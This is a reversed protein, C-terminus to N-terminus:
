FREPRELHREHRHRAAPQRFQRQRQIERGAALHVPRRRPLLRRRVILLRCRKPPRRQRLRAHPRRQVRQQDPHHLLSRPRLPEQGRDAALNQLRGRQRDPLPRVPIGLGERYPPRLLLRRVAVLVSVAAEPHRHRHSPIRRAHSVHRLPHLSERMGNLGFALGEVNNLDYSATAAFGTGSNSQSVAGSLGVMGIPLGLALGAGGLLVKSDGQGNLDVTIQDTLGYRGNATVIWDTTLYNRENDRLFSPLGAGASWELDGAALLSSDSFATFDLSRRDGKDDVIALKVNNAGTQLPLDKLAYKGPGLKLQQVSLGNVLVEITSARELQFTTRGTPGSSTTPAFIRPAHEIRLGMFEPQAQFGTGLTSTDGLQFRLQEDPRDYVLRSSRRKLGGRHEATCTADAPCLFTDVDGDFGFDNEAVVDWFRFVSEAELHLSTQQEAGPKAWVTDLGGFLNLYGSFDEPREDAPLSGLSASAGRQLSIETMSRQAAKAEFILEMAGSDFHLAIGAAAVDTIAVMGSTDPLEALKKRTPEDILKSLMESLTAKAASVAGDPDIKIGVDGIARTGDKLPVAMSISKGTPNLGVAAPAEADALGSAPGVNVAVQTPKDKATTKAPPKATVEARPAGGVLAPGDLVPAGYELVVAAPAETPAPLAAAATEQVELTREVTTTWAPEALAELEVPALSIAGAFAM